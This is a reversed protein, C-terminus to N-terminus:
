FGAAAFIHFRYLPAPSVFLEKADEGITPAGKSVPREMTAPDNFPSAKRELDQEFAALFPNTSIPRAPATAPSTPTPLSPSSLKPNLFPNNSNPHLNM